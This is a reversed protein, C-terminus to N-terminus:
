RTGEATGCAGLYAGKDVQEMVEVARGLDQPMEELHAVLAPENQLAELFPEVGILFARNDPQRLLFDTERDILAVLWDM